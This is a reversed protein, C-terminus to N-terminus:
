YHTGSLIFVSVARNVTFNFTPGVHKGRLYSKTISDNKIYNHLGVHSQGSRKEIIRLCSLGGNM